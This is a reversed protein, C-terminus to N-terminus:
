SPAVVFAKLRTVTESSVEVEAAVFDPEYSVSMVRGHQRCLQLLEMRDYPLQLSLPVLRALAAQAIRGRLEDLGVEELASVPLGDPMDAMVQEARRTGTVRDWKNLVVVTPKDAVGLRQLIHESAARETAAWPASADIVHLIVDADGLQELTAMFASFLDRPLKHIFGVTDSILVEAGAIEVRRITTDLTEFLRDHARVQQSGVLANLLTSKGANTYGVLSVMPLGSERRTKHEIERQRKVTELDERLRAMKRRLGSRDTELKTEGPGRVGVGGGSGGAIRDMMRGKGLLRPLLYSLQALEVQLKGERSTAHHAFIDLILETRDLVKCDLKDVLNSVQVPTLEGDFLVIEADTSLCLARLQKLKGKGIYTNQDPRNRVQVMVEVPAAGASLALQALERMSRLGEGRLPALGVLIAKEATLLTERELGVAIIENM